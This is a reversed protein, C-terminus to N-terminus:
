ALLPERTPLRRRRRTGAGSGRWSRTRRRRGGRGRTTTSCRARGTSSPTSSRGRRKSSTRGRSCGSMADGLLREYAEMREGQAKADYDIVSLEVPDGVMAEGPKKARAGLAISVSPNLRFRLYNGMPPAAEKFVVHPPNHFEIMVETCTVKLSKGARVFFPVGEWRWSDVFMRLAAYTAMFSDPAVGPEQRYGRFQGRV